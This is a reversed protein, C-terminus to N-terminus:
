LQSELQCVIALCVVCLCQVHRVPVACWAARVVNLAEDNLSQALTFGNAWGSRTLGKQGQLHLGERRTQQGRAILYAANLAVTSRDQPARDRSSTERLARPCATSSWLAIEEKQLLGTLHDHSLPTSPDVNFVLCALFKIVYSAHLPYAADRNAWKGETQGVVDSCVIHDRTVVGWRTTWAL